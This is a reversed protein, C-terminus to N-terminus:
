TALPKFIILIMTKESDIQPVNIDSSWAVLDCIPNDKNNGVSLPTACAKVSFYKAVDQEKKIYVKITGENDILRMIDQLTIQANMPAITHLATTIKITYKKVNGQSVDVYDETTQKSTHQEEEFVYVKDGRLSSKRLSQNIQSLDIVYSTMPDCAGNDCIRIYRIKRDFKIFFNRALAKRPNYLIDKLTKDGTHSIIISETFVLQVNVTQINKKIEEKDDIQDKTFGLRFNEQKQLLIFLLVAITVCTCM